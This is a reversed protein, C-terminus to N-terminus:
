QSTLVSQYIALHKAVVGEISYEREALERGAAGMRRRREPDALLEVIADALAAVNRPPILIGSKGPEIADRCGPMDTTIVPRSCAAAEVLVKPLGEGYYSPLTVIAAGAFLAAVDSRFGLVEVHGQEQWQRLQEPSVSTPNGPDPGGVLQFRAQVGRARLLEAAEVFEHVGKPKLLRAAFIVIPVGPPEPAPAYETLDVGSGRIMEIQDSTVVDAQMLLDRDSPNQFIVKVHESGLAIRYVLIVVRRLARARWGTAVFVHGLGSIAAVVGRVGAIRAAVGGYLVPKLTVLHVVDPKLKRMVRVIAFWAAIESFVNVGSRSMPIPHHIIGHSEVIKKTDPSSQSALHVEYGRKLAGLAISLRHSLFFGSDNVVFLLRKRM